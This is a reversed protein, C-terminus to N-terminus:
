AYQVVFVAEQANARAGIAGLTRTLALAIPIPVSTGSKKTIKMMLQEM